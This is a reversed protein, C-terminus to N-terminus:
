GDGDGKQLYPFEGDDPNWNDLQIREAAEQKAFVIAEGSRLAACFIPVWYPIDDKGNIWNFVRNLPMGTIRSLTEPKVDIENLIETLESGHMRVYEFRRKAMIRDRNTISEAHM